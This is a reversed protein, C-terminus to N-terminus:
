IFYYFLAKGCILLVDFIGEPVHHHHRDHVIEAEVEVSSHGLPTDFIADEAHHVHIETSHIPLEELFEEISHHHHPHGAALYKASKALKANKTIKVNKKVPVASVAAILCLAALLITITNM